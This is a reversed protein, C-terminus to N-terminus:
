PPQLLLTFDPLLRTTYSGGGAVHITRQWRLGRRRVLLAPRDADDRPDLIWYERNWGAVGAAYHIDAPKVAMTGSRALRM